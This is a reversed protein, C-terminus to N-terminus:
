LGKPTVLVFRFHGPIQGILLGDDGTLFTREIAENDLHEVIKLNRQELFSGIKGEDISFTLKESKHQEQMSQFFEKAGYYDHLNEETISITYDFALLSDPHSLRSFFELTADVSEPDLYYSVGEWIFLSKQQNQYGARELVDKLSEQNFDIPVFAVQRPINIKARKLCETKREQTPAIDLEFVKTGQILKAFRYARSDYGAGLLVIQPTGDKLAAVFINDFYATRAIIYATVGPFFGDLKAKTNTRIKNFKLFFRFHIPLFYEALYDPGFCNNKYEKNAITRRLAAILATESPKQEVSTNTM